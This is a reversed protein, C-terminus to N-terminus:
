ADARPSGAPPRSEFFYRLAGPAELPIWFRTRALYPWPWAWYCTVDTFGAAEFCKKLDAMKVNMPMVGRLFAAYRRNASARATM